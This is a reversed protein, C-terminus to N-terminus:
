AKSAKAKSGLCKAKDAASCKAACKAKEEPSCEKKAEAGKEMVASAVRTFSKKETDYQVEEWSIKGSTACTAKEFYSVKGSVACERREINENAEAIKDAEMYAAAVKTDAKESVSTTKTAKKTCTKSCQAQVSVGAMMFLCLAFLLKKM